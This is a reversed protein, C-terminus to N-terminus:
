LNFSNLTEKTIISKISYKDPLKCKPRITNRIKVKITDPMILPKKPNPNGDVAIPSRVRTISGIWAIETITAGINNLLINWYALLEWWYLVYMSSLTNAKDIITLMNTVEKNMVAYGLLKNVVAIPKEM